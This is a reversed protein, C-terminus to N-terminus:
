KMQAAFMRWLMPRLLEGEACPRLRRFHYVMLLFWLMFASGLLEASRWTEQYLSAKLHEPFRGSHRSSERTQCSRISQSDTNHVREIYWGCSLSWILSYLTQDYSHSHWNVHSHEDRFVPRCPARRPAACCRPLKKRSNPAPLPHQSQPPCKITSIVTPV